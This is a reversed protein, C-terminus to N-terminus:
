QGNNKRREYVEIYDHIGDWQVPKHSAVENWEEHLVKFFADDATCGGESEGIYVLRKGSYTNLCHFAMEEAYPPWCLFLTRERHQALDSPGGRQIPHYVERLEYSFDGSHSVRPSHYHNRTDQDPPFLDYCLMDVGLQSLQWAWYGTGAGMEVAKPGLWEAVFAVSASDPIAWSYKECYDYRSVFLHRAEEMKKDSLYKGSRFGYPDDIPKDKIEDWYPNLTRTGYITM